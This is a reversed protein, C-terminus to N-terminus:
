SPSADSHIEASRQGAPTAAKREPYQLLQPVKHGAGDKEVSSCSKFDNVQVLLIGLWAPWSSEQPILYLKLGRLFPM